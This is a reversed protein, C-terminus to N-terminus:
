LPILIWAGPAQLDVEANAAEIAASTTHHRKAIEWISEKEPMRVVIASLGKEDAPYEEGWEASEVAT